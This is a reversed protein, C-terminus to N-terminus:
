HTEWAPGPRLMGRGPPNTCPLPLAPPQVGQTWRASWRRSLKAWRKKYNLSIKKKEGREGRLIEDGIEKLKIIWKRIRKGRGASSAQCNTMTASCRRTPWLRPTIAPTSVSPPFTRQAWGGVCSTLSGLRAKSTNLTVSIDHKPSWIM